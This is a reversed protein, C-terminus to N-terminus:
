DLARDLLLGPIEQSGKWGIAPSVLPQDEIQVVVGPCRTDVRDCIAVNTGVTRLFCNISDTRKNHECSQFLAQM